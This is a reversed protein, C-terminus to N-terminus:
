VSVKSLIRIAFSTLKLTQKAINADAGHTHLNLQIFSRSNEHLATQLQQTPATDAFYNSPATLAKMCRM